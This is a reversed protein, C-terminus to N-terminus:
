WELEGRKKMLNYRAIYCKETLNDFPITEATILSIFINTVDPGYKVIEDFKLLADKVTKINLEEACKIVGKKNFFMDIRKDLLPLLEKLAQVHAKETVTAYYNSM